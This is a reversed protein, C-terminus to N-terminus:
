YKMLLPLLQGKAKMDEIIIKKEPTIYTACRKAFSQLTETAPDYKLTKFTEPDVTNLEMIAATMKITGRDVGNIRFAETMTRVKSFSKLVKKYRSIVEAPGKVRVHAKGPVAVTASTSPQTWRTKRRQIVVDSDSSESINPSSPDDDMNSHDNEDDDELTFKKPQSSKKKGLIQERLFNREQELDTIVKEQWQIKAELFEVKSISGSGISSISCCSTASSGKDEPGDLDKKTVETMTMKM